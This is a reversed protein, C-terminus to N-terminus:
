LAYTGQDEAYEVEIIPMNWKGNRITGACKTCRSQIMKRTLWM